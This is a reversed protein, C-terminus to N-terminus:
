NCVGVNILSYEAVRKGNRKVMETHINLGNDHRLDYIRGGLRQCGCLFLAELSTITKGSELHARIQKTQSKTTAM